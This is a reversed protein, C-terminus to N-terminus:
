LRGSRRAYRNGPRWELFEVAVLANVVADCLPLNLGWLRRMQEKTLSLGPMEVYEARVQEIWELLAREAVLMIDEQGRNNIGNSV